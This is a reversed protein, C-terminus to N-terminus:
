LDGGVVKELRREAVIKAEKIIDEVENNIHEKNIFMFEENVQPTFSGLAVRLAEEAQGLLSLIDPPSGGLSREAERMLRLPVELESLPIIGTVALTELRLSLFELLHEIEYLNELMQKAIPDRKAVRELRKEHIKVKMLVQRVISLARSVAVRTSIERRRKLM